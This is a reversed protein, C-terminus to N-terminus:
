LVESEIVRFPGDGHLPGNLVTASSLLLDHLFNPLGILIVHSGHTHTDPM